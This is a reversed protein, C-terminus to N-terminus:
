IVKTSSISRSHASRARNDTLTTREHIQNIEQNTDHVHQNLASEIRDVSDKMAEAHAEVRALQAAEHPELAM